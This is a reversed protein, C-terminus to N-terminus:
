AKRFFQIVEGAGYALAWVGITSVFAFAFFSGATAPDFPEANLAFTNAEAETMAWVKQVQMERGPGCVSAQDPTTTGNLWRNCKVADM